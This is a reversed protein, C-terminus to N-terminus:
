ISKDIDADSGKLQEIAEEPTSQENDGFSRDADADSGKLQEAAEELTSQDNDIGHKKVYKDNTNQDTKEFASAAEVEKSQEKNQSM